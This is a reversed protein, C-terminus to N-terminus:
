IIQFAVNVYVNRGKQPIHNWDSYTSYRRDFLNEVGLHLDTGVGGINFHGGVNIHWVAYGSTLTEGYAKGCNKNRSAMRVGGEADLNSWRMRLSGLYSLPAILPLREGRSEKGYGYAIRNSWELWKVPRYDATLSVNVIQAYSMNQYIKVFNVM